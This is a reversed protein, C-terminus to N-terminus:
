AALRRALAPMVVNAMLTVLVGSMVLARAPLPLQALTEGFVSLLALVVVFAALWAALTMHLRQRLTPM